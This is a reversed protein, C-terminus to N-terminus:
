HSFHARGARFGRSEESPSCNAFDPDDYEVRRFEVARRTQDYICYAARPDPDRSLGVSGVNVLYKRAPDLDLRAPAREGAPDPGDRFVRQLHTHGYFCLPTQQVQLNPAAEAAQFVYGWKAPASLNAHVITFDAVSHVLPLERLWRRQGLTLRSSTRQFMREVKPLYRADTPEHSCAEDHNGMVCPANLAQILEVCERPQRGYNVLDGLFAIKSCGQTRADALVAELAPLNAHIDALLAYRM